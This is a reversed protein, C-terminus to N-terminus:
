RDTGTRRDFRAILTRIREGFDAPVPERGLAGLQAKLQKEFEARSFCSRCRELHREVDDQEDGGLEGDLFAALLKLAEECALLRLESM